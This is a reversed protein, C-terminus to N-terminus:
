VEPPYVLGEIDHEEGKTIKIWGEIYQGLIMSAYIFFHITFEGKKECYREVLQDYVASVYILDIPEPSVVRNALVLDMVHSLKGFSFPIVYDDVAVLEESKDRELIEDFTSRLEKIAEELPTVVKDRVLMEITGEMAARNLKNYAPKETLLTWKIMEILNVLRSTETM